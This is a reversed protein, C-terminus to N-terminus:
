KKILKITYSGYDSAGVHRLKVSLSHDCPNVASFTGAVSQATLVEGGYSGYVQKAVSINNNSPDITLIIPKETGPDVAYVFSIQTPSVVSVPIAVGARYDNWEDSVVTFNGAYEAAVFTCPKLFQLSTNVGGYEGAVGAGYAIGVTPFAQFLQGEQTTIDVGIDFKDGDAIPSGFLDILNQGTVTFSSPFTTIGAKITKVNATNNNKMVLLDFKQPPVDTKFFLGVSFITKFTAPAGPNIFKDSAPDLVFSPVPVRTLVPIKANDTKRCASLLTFAVLISYTIIRKM